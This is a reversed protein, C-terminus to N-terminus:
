GWRPPGQVDCFSRRVKLLSNFPIWVMTFEVLCTTRCSQTYIVQREWATYRLSDLLRAKNIFIEFLSIYHFCSYLWYKNGLQIKSIWRKFYRSQFKQSLLFYYMREKEAKFEPNNQLLSGSNYWSNIKWTIYNHWFISKRLSRTGTHVRLSVVVTTRLRKSVKFDM